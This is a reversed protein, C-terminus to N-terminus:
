EKDYAKMNEDFQIKIEKFSSYLLRKNKYDFGRYKILCYCLRFLDRTTDCKMFQYYIYYIIDKFIIVDDKFLELSENVLELIKKSEPNEKFELILKRYFYNYDEFISKEIEKVSLGNKLLCDVKYQLLDNLKEKINLFLDFKVKLNKALLVCDGLIGNQNRLFSCYFDIFRTYENFEVTVRECQNNEGFFNVNQLKNKIQCDRQNKCSIFHEFNKIIIM